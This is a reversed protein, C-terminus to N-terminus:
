MNEAKKDTRYIENGCRLNGLSWAAFDQSEERNSHLLWLQSILPHPSPLHSHPFRTLGDLKQGGQDVKTGGPGVEM